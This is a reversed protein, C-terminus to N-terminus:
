LGFAGTEFAAAEVANVVCFAVHEKNDALEPQFHELFAGGVLESDEMLKEEFNELARLRTTLEEWKDIPVLIVREYSM